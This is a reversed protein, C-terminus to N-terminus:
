GTSGGASFWYSLGLIVVVLPMESLCAPLLICICGANCEGCRWFWGLELGVVLLFVFHAEFVFDFLRGALCVRESYWRIERSFFLLNSVSDAQMRVAQSSM